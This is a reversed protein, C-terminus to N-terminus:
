QEMGIGLQRCAEELDGDNRFVLSLREGDQIYTAAMPMPITVNSPEKTEAQRLRAQEALGAPTLRWQRFNNGKGSVYESQCLGPHFYILSYCGANTTGAPSREWELTLAKLARMQASTYRRERM